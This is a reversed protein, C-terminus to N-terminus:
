KAAFALLCAGLVLLPVALISIMGIALFRRGFIFSVIIGAIMLILPFVWSTSSRSNIMIVVPIIPAFIFGLIFDFIKRGTHTYYDKKGDNTDSM